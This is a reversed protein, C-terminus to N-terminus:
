FLVVHGPKEKSRREFEINEVVEPLGLTDVINGKQGIITQHQDFSM